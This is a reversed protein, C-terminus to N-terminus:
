YRSLLVAASVHHPKYYDETTEVRWGSWGRRPVPKELLQKKIEADLLAFASDLPSPTKEPSCAAIRKVAGYEDYDFPDFFEACGIILFRVESKDTIIHTSTTALLGKAADYVRVCIPFDPEASRFLFRIAEHAQHIHGVEITAKIM